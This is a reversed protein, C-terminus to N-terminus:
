TTTEAAVVASNRSSFGDIMDEAAVIAVVTVARVGPCRRAEVMGADGVVTDAAVVAAIRRALRGVVHERVVYTFVAMVIIYPNGHVPHIVCIDQAAAEATMVTGYRGTLGGSMDHATVIAIVTMRGVTPARRDEIM